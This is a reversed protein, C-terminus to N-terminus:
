CVHSRKTPRFQKSSRRQRPSSRTECSASPPIIKPGLIMRLRGRGRVLINQADYPGVGLEAATESISLGEFYHLMMARQDIPTLEAIAARLMRGREACAAEEEPSPSDDHLEDLLTLDDDWSVTRAPTGRRRIIDLAVHKVAACFYAEFKAPIYELRATKVLAESVADEADFPDGLISM